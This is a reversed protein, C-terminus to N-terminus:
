ALKWGKFRNLLFEIITRSVFLATFMSTLIGILFTVAFGKVPGSGFYILIVCVAATTINADLIASLAYRFGNQVAMQSGSGKRLEERIREFVIVNADVAVGLTLVIGAVGPLTLTAGLSSLVALIFLLNLSLAVDAVVGLFRYYVLMFILVLVGAVLGAWKGKRISDAGLTPGVTREELFKLEVPLAGANLTTATLNAEELAQNYSTVRSNIQANGDPIKNQVVPASHIVGDLIIAIRKGTYKETMDAFKRRGELGFRLNVTPFGQEGVGVFAEELMNGTLDSQTEVLYPIKGSELTLAQGNKEFFITSDKPLKSALDENIRKLYNSYSLSKKGLHYKGESEAQLILNQLEETPIEELVGRFYLRGTQSLLKKAQTSNEIGPLQVLIRNEGQALINPESVGFEDIRNRIVQIVQNVIQKKYNFLEQPNYRFLIKKEKEKFEVEQLLVDYAAKLDSFSSDQFIFDRVMKVEEAKELQIEIWTREKSIDNTVVKIDQFPIKESEMDEKLNKQLRQIKEFLTKEVNAALVLHLGGQIDLGYIIKEQTPWWSWRGKKQSDSSESSGPFFLSPVIWIFAMLISLFILAFRVKQSKIM